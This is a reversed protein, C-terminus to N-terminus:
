CQPCAVVRDAWRSGAPREAIRAEIWADIENEPFAISRGMKVPFPFADHKILKWISVYSLLIGKQTRLEELPILRLPKKKM